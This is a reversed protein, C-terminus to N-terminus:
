YCNNGTHTNGIYVQTITHNGLVLYFNSAETGLYINMYCGQTSGDPYILAWALYNVSSSLRWVDGIRFGLYGTGTFCYQTSSSSSDFELTGAGCATPSIQPHIAAPSNVQKHGWKTCTITAPKSGHLAINTRLCVKTPTARHITSSTTRAQISPSPLVGFILISCLIVIIPLLASRTHTLLHKM